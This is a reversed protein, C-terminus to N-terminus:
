ETRTSPSIWHPWEEMSACLQKVVPNQRIYTWTKRSEDRDRIRHDFYNEQWRVGHLRATGRKWNRVVTSMSASPPFAVLLHVHDPMMLALECWWHGLKHYHEVSVLLRGSLEPDCFPPTPEPAARVRLHFLSGSEVWGPVRHHLREPYDNAM